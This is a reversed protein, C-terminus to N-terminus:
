REKAAENLVSNILKLKLAANRNGAQALMGESLLLTLLSLTLSRGSGRGILKRHDENIWVINRDHDLEFFRESKMPRFDFELTLDSPKTDFGAFRRRVRKPVPEGPVLMRPARADSPTRYAEEAATIYDAWKIRGRSATSRRVADIFTKELDVAAKTYRVTIHDDLGQVLEISVRALSLHPEHSRYNSWGGAQVLRDNLYVYFGQREQVKGGGLKYNAASSRPPWIHAAARIKRRGLKLEFEKPYGSVGSTPYGFPDLPKVESSGRQGKQSNHIEIWVRLDGRELFRHFHLGIHDNLVKKTRTLYADTNGRAASFAKVEDWAVVTGSGGGEFGLNWDAELARAASATSLELCRWNDLATDTRWRLGAARGHTSKSYVSMVASQSLSASKMGLGYMGIGSGSHSRHKAFTMADRLRARTMGCGNDAVEFRTLTTNTRTFRLVVTTAGADVSNDIIDAVAEPFSYGVALVANLIQPEPLLQIEGVVDVSTENTL